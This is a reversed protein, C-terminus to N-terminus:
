GAARPRGGEVLNACLELRGAGAHEAAIAGQVSDVCAEVLISM